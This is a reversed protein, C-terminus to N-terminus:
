SEVPRPGIDAPPPGEPYTAFARALDDWLREARVKARSGNVLFSFEITAGSETPFFGSLARTLQLTGTKARMVGDAPTGKLYHKLTGTQGAVAMGDFIASDKGARALLRVFTNCSVRDNGSLGSGDSFVHGATPIGWTELQAKVAKAGAATSGSKQAKLGIEKLMLEATNNDSTTLMEKVITTLSASSVSTIVPLDGAKGEGLDGVVVGRKELESRFVEVAGLTSSSRRTTDTGIYGDNVMLASLASADGRRISNVWGPADVKKDYRSADGVLRDVRRVGAAVVQDALLEVRTIDTPPYTNLGLKPYRDTSLLPDGGGVLVMRPVNGAAGVSGRVETTYRFDEGLLSLAVAATLIKMNSGPLFATAANDDVVTRGDVAVALCAANKVADTVKSLASTLKSSRITIILPQPLRRVSLVPTVAHPGGPSAGAAPAAGLRNAATHSVALIAVIFALPVFLM